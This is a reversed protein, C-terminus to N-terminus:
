LPHESHILTIQQNPGQNPPLMFVLDVKFAGILEACLVHKRCKAHFRGMGGEGDM